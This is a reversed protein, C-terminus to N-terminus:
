PTLVIRFSLTSDGTGSYRGFGFQGGLVGNGYHGGRRFWPRDSYIFHADQNYWSSHWRLGNDKDAYRYYPGMEGTADGLIRNQYSTATSSASYVDFYKSDYNSITEETFGSSGLQNSMYGAVGEHAGGNM